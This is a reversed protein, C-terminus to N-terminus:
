WVYLDVLLQDLLPTPAHITVDVLSPFLALFPEYSSCWPTSCHAEDFISSGPQLAAWMEEARRQEELPVEVSAAGFLAALAPTASSRPPFDLWPIGLLACQNKMWANIPGSFWDAARFGITLLEWGHDFPNGHQMGQHQHMCWCGHIQYYIKIQQMDIM